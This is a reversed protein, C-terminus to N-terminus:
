APCFDSPIKVLSHLAFSSVIGFKSVDIGLWYLPPPSSPVRSLPIQSLAIGDALRWTEPVGLPCAPALSLLALIKLRARVSLSLINLGVKLHVIKLLFFDWRPLELELPRAELCEANTCIRNAL